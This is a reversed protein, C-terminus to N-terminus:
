RRANEIVATSDIELFSRASQIIYSTERIEQKGIIGGNTVVEDNIKEIRHDDGVLIKQQVPAASRIVFFLFLLAIVPCASISLIRKGYGEKAFYVLVLNM